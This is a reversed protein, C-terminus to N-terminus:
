RIAALLARAVEKSRVGMETVPGVCSPCGKECACAALVGHARSLLEDHSDFLLPSFGIGGPYNDYLFITPEFTPLSALAVSEGTTATVVPGGAGPIAGPAPRGRGVPVGANAFWQASRDGVCHQLDGVDCMLLFPAIGHLVYALGMVGDLVEARGYPLTRLFGAPLTMWCATTSMEQDPLTVDGYGVNERTAFKIKKFGSVRWTVHVEGHERCLRADEPISSHPSSGIPAGTSPTGPPPAIEIRGRRPEVHAARETPEANLSELPTLRGGGRTEEGGGARRAPAAHATMEQATTRRVDRMALSGAPTAPAVRGLPSVEREFVDLVKVSTNTIAETYYEVDSEKVYVRHQAYDIQKVNFQRTECLYIADQYVTAPASAYDVEAIVRNQQDMDMIVFNENSVSRLSVTDAPYVEKTWHWASGAHHLIGQEELYQLIAPLNEAGYREGDAVPLEFAACKLHSVLILLNDPNILAFEPSRGFFYDPHTVLFQDIPESRAVLVAVSRGQRRGARGAQQWASAISGPYGAMICADLSGIDIGLELANTSVVGLIEGARLGREIERRTNPLYGGRYSRIRGSLTPNRELREKLGKTLIEVNLRSTAFAITSVDKELFRQAIWRSATLCSRRIGLERNVVPPNYFAFTKAGSPAGNEDVLAVPAELLREAHEKPNAITASCCIFVPNSGYFRCIRRLRRFVNAVHSGFVGRYTHLEDVVVFRLNQFLKAWKSHHPLIGQHLMDPNTVVVHGQARIARRADDPTDGDYTFTRIPAGVRDILEQLEAVQDQSLAKTPFLYLARTEPEALIRSLVPLNYCLTKGSATPTVVVANRGAAVHGLATAQHRYLLPIGRGEVAKRLRPDVWDPWEGYVAERAPIERVSTFAGRGDGDGLLGELVSEVSM